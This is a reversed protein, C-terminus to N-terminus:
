APQKAQGHGNGRPCFHGSPDMPEQCLPCIPRGSEVLDKARRSVARMQGRTAWLRVARPEELPHGEADTEGIAEQGVLVLMDSGQDYALGMHGVAFLVDLPERLALQPEEPISDALPPRIEKNELEELLADVARALAWAQEKELKLTILVEQTAAQLLFTRRGPQGVAGVTIREVPNLEITNEM